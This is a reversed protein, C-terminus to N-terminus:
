GDVSGLKTSGELVPTVDKAEKRTRFDCMRSTLSTRDVVKIDTPLSAVNDLCVWRDFIIKDRVSKLDCVRIAKMNLPCTNFWGDM